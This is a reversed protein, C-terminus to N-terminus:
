RNYPNSEPAGKIGEAAGESFSNPVKMVKGVGEGGKEAGKNVTECGYMTVLGLIFVTAVLIKIM